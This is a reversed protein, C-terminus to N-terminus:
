YLPTLAWRFTLAGYSSGVVAQLTLGSFQLQLANGGPVADDGAIRTAVASSGYVSIFYVAHHSGTGQQGIQAIYFQQRSTNALTTLNITEAVGSGASGITGSSVYNQGAKNATTSDIISNLMLLNSAQMETAAPGVRNIGSIVGTGAVSTANPMSLYNNTFNVMNANAVNIPYPQTQGGGISFTNGTVAVRGSSIRIAAAEGGAAHEDLDWDVFECGNITVSSVNSDLYIPNRNIDRFVCGNITMGDVEVGAYISWPTYSTTTAYIGQGRFQVNSISIDKCYGLYIGGDIKSPMGYAGAGVSTVIFSNAIHVQQVRNSATGLIDIVPRNVNLVEGAYLNVISTNIHNTSNDYPRLAVCANSCSNAWINVLRNGGAALLIGVAGGGFETDTASSDSWMHCQINSGAMFCRTIRMLGQMSYVGYSVGNYIGCDTITLFAGFTGDIVKSAKGDGDIRMDKFTLCDTGSGGSSGIKFVHAQGATRAKIVTQQTASYHYFGDGYLVAGRSQFPITLPDTVYVGAPFYVSKGTNLAQQIAATSDNVGTPDAGYDLVNASAGLIM